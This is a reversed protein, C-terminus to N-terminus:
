EEAFYDSDIQKIEFIQKSSVGVGYDIMLNALREGDILVIKSDIQGVFERAEKTYHSTTIFVGKKARFGQLAGAFKQIEPRGVVGEWRKAQLYITDLGLRDERIIGDVGGDGSLKTAEGAERRSGGYGLNIMLDVVLREFFAPSASKITDLLDSALDQRLRQYASEIAETPTSQESFIERLDSEALAVTPTDPKATRPASQFDQFESFQRLYDVNIQLPKSALVNQGRASIQVSGRSPSDVLGAKKLYTKAWGIRNKVITQGGSPLLEAREGVSLDFEDSLREYISRIPHEKGDSICRLLPLMFSQYDPIAM